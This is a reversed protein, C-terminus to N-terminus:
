AFLQSIYSAQSNLTALATEMASFKDYYRDAMDDLKDELDQITDDIDDIKDETNSVSDGATDQYASLANKVKYILGQQDSDATSSGGTFISVVDEPNSELAASLADQDLVLLGKNTDYYSASSIGVTTANKGTGGADTFFAKKLNSILSELDSNHRLIGSKAKENWKEIEADSMEEEEAETLPEYDDSYSEESVLGNLKTLLTNFADVFNEVADVTSSYDHDVTFTVYDDSQDTVETLSYEIGDITYDNSDREVTVGDIVAISNQGNQTVGEEIQFASNEGFANGALNVISIKSDEGGSDATITFADKLRSYSLTVNADADNSVTDLVDQLTDTQSFTFTKGNISFSIQSSEDFQLANAFSLESLAATNDASLEIGDSVTGASSVSSNEALQKVVVSDESSATVAHLEYTIGDIKYENSDKEVRIGNIEAISNQGNTVTGTGIQFAGDTGFATGAINVISVKSDEGGSDATISFSDSLRSYKMTVNADADNNITNIMSQLTTSKSFSFTKGNIAFSIKGNSDFQLQNQFSLNALTTTNSASIATGDASVKGSSSVNANVALQDVKVSITGTDASGSASITVANSDSDSTVEYASYTSAQLMSSSGLASCYTNSFEKVADLIDTVAEDYWEYTTKKQEQRDIKTQQGSCLSKVISDTDLNSYMGTIRSDSSYTSSYTSNVSSM